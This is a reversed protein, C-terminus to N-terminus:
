RYFLPFLLVELGPSKRPNCSTVWALRESPVVHKTRETIAPVVHPGANTNSFHEVTFELRCVQAMQPSATIELGKGPHLM